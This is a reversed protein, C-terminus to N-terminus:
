SDDYIQVSGDLIQERLKMIKPHHYNYLSIILTYQVTSRLNERSVAELVNLKLVKLINRTTM